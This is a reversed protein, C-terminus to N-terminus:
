KMNEVQLEAQMTLMASNGFFDISFGIVNCFIYLLINAHPVAVFFSQTKINHEIYLFNSIQPFTCIQCMIYKKNLGFLFSNYYPPSHFRCM